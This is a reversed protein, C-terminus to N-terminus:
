FWHTVELVALILAAFLMCLAVILGWRRKSLGHSGTKMRLDVLTSRSFAFVGEEKMNTPWREQDLGENAMDGERQGHRVWKSLCGVYWCLGSCCIAPFEFNLPCRESLLAARSYRFRHPSTDQKSAM